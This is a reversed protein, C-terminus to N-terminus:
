LGNSIHSHPSLSNRWLRIWEADTGLRFSCLCGIPPLCTKLTCSEQTTTKCRFKASSRTAVEAISRVQEERLKNLPTLQIITKGMFLMSQPSTVVLDDTIKDNFTLIM